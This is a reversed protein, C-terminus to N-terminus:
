IRTISSLSSDVVTKDWTTGNKWAYRIESDIMEFYAIHPTGNGDVAISPYRGVSGEFDVTELFWDNNIWRGYKLSDNGRTDMFAVHPDGNHDTTISSEYPIDDFDIDTTLWGKNAYVQFHASDDAVM